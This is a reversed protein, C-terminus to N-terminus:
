SALCCGAVSPYLEVYLTACDLTAGSACGIAVESNPATHRHGFTVVSSSDYDALVGATNFRGGKVPQGYQQGDRYMTILTTVADYTIAVHTFRSRAQDDM